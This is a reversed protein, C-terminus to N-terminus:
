AHVLHVFIERNGEAGPLPSPVAARCRMGLSAAARLVGAVAEARLAPDRVVGRRGVRRRGVEFQPKVLAVVPARGCAGVLPALVSRLSIFALDACVLEVDDVGDLDRVDTGERVEVREDSRLSWALQGRGVDVAIVSAAGRQLLCDVFGGTSSGADLCRRGRVDIRFADLAAALKAGGRSVYPEPAGALEIPESAEVLRNPKTAPFGRVLVRGSVVAVRAGARSRAM